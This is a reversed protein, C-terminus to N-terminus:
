PTCRWVELGEELRTCDALYARLLERTQTNEPDTLPTATTVVVSPRRSLISRMEESTHLHSVDIEAAANLHTPFVLPSLNRRGTAAYLQTPGEYVLLDDGPQQRIVEAIRNFEAARAKHIGFNLPSFFVLAYGVIAAFGALGIFRRDLFPACAVCLPPLLPIAYHLYLQPVSVVGLLAAALWVASIRQRHFVLGLTAGAILPILRRFLDLSRGLISPGNPLDRDLSSLVMAHWAEPLHGVLPLCVLVFPILGSAALLPIRRWDVRTACYLGLAICEFIATQKFALSTGLAFMAIYFRQKLILLVGLVTFLNYFVSSQGFGGAVTQLTVLYACGALFSGQWGTCHRCILVIVQATGAAFLTAALYYFWPEPHIASILAALYFMGPPKRDWIDVYLDAGELLQTGVLRYFQDDMHAIPDFFAPLRLALALSVLGCFILLEFRALAIRGSLDRGTTPVAAGGRTSKGFVGMDVLM